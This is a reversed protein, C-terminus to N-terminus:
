QSVFSSAGHRDNDVIETTAGIEPGDDVRSPKQLSMPVAPFVNQSCDAIEPTPRIEPPATRNSRPEGSTMPIRSIETRGGNAICLRRADEDRRPKKPDTEISEQAKWKSPTATNMKLPAPTPTRDELNHLIGGSQQSTTQLRKPAMRRSRDLSSARTKAPPGRRSTTREAQDSLPTPMPMPDARNSAYFEPPPHRRPKSFGRTRAIQGRRSTTAEVQHSLPMPTQDARRSAHFASPADSGRSRKQSVRRSSTRETPTEDM